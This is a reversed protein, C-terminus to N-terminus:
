VALKETSINLLKWLICFSHYPIIRLLKFGSLGYVPRSHTSHLKSHVFLTAKDTLGALLPCRSADFATMAASGCVLTHFQPNTWRQYSSVLNVLVIVSRFASAIIM